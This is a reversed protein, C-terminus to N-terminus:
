SGKVAAKQAAGLLRQYEQHEPSGKIKVKERWGADLMKTDLTAGANADVQLNPTEGDLRRHEGARDALSFFFKMLNGTGMKLDLESALAPDVGLSKVFEKVQPLKADYDPTSKRFADLEAQSSRELDALQGAVFQNNFEVVGKAQSATLGLKHALPRFDDALKTDAGEPLPIEYKDPTEPRGLQNYFAGWTADDAGEDPKVIRSSAQRKLDLAGRALKEVDAYRALTPDAKLDDPLSGMWDPTAGGGEGGQGGGAAGADDVLVVVGGEGGNGGDSM